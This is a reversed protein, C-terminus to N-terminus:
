SYEQFECAVNYKLTSGAVKLAEVKVGINKTPQVNVSDGDPSQFSATQNTIMSWYEDSIDEYQAYTLGVWALKYIVRKNGILGPSVIDVVNLGSAMEMVAGQLVEDRSYATPNALTTGGLVPAAM